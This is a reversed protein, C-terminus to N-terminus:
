SIICSISITGSIIIRRPTNRSDVRKKELSLTLNIIVEDRHLSCITCINNRDDEVKKKKDRLEIRLM